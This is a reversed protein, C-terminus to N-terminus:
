QEDTKTVEGYIILNKWNKGNWPKVDWDDFMQQTPYVTRVKDGEAITLQIDMSYEGAPLQEMLSHHVNIVNTTSVVDLLVPSEPVPKERVTLRLTDGAQMEYPEHEADELAVEISLDDGRFEYIKDDRVM